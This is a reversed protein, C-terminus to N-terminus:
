QTATRLTVTLTVQEAYPLDVEKAVIVLRRLIVAVQRRGEKGEKKLSDLRSIEGRSFQNYYDVLDHAAKARERHQHVSELQEGKGLTLQYCIGTFTPSGLVGIRVATRGVENMKTEMTSFSQGVSQPFHTRPRQVSM